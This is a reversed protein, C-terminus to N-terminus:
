ESVLMFGYCGSILLLATISGLIFMKESSRAARRAAVFTLLVVVVLAGSVFRLIAPPGGYASEIGVVGGAFIVATIGGVLFGALFWLASRFATWEPKRDTGTM